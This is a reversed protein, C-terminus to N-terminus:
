VVIIRVQAFELRAVVIIRVQIFELRAVAIISVQVFEVIIGVQVVQLRAVM